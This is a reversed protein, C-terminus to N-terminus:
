DQKIIHNFFKYENKKFLENIKEHSFGTEILVSALLIVRLKETLNFLKSSKLAKKETSIDYHTYYNRSNKTDIIFQSKDLVIKDITEIKLFDLLESLRNHLTPENSFSLRERLWTKNPEDVSNLIVTIMKKHENRPQVENLKFRRHFTELAQVINLFRNETFKGRNHFSDLLLFTIPEIKEKLKFWESIIKEFSHEIDSYSFLFERIHKKDNEIFNFGPKYYLEINETENLILYISYPYATEYAGLTLFFQFYILQDIIEFFTKKSSNELILHSKQEIVIKQINPNLPASFSFNIKGNLENSIKFSISEPKEYNIKYNNAFDTKLNNFGYKNVWAEFNKFRAKISYFILEEVKKFHEGIFIYSSQYKCIEIGPFSTARQYLFSKFLTIKKGNSTLGLILVIDPNDDEELTGLLELNAGNNLDFTLTGTIYTEQNEENEPLFWLGKHELNQIM